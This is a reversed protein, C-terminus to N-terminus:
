EKLEPVPRSRVGTRDGSSAADIAKRIDPDRLAALEIASITVAPTLILTGDPMQEATYQDYNHSRVRALSARGREDVDV